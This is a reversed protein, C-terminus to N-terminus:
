VSSTRGAFRPRMRALNFGLFHDNRDAAGPTMIIAIPASNSPLTEISHGDKPLHGSGSEEGGLSDLPLISIVPRWQREKSGQLL